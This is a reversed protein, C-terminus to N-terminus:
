FSQVRRLPYAGPPNLHGDTTAAFQPAQTAVASPTIKRQRISDTLM